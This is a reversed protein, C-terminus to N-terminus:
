IAKVCSTNVQDFDSIYNFKGIFASSRRRHCREPTKLKLKASILCM